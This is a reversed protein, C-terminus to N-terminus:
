GRRLLNVVLERSAASIVQERTADDKLVTGIAALFQIHPGSIKKPSVVMIFLRSREGDMSDFEIGTKKIGVAVCIGKVGETKAHPLAIGHQMGTSMSKEREFIDHLVLDRDELKGHVALIDVMETLLEDKTNGRLDTVTCEGTVLNLLEQTTRGLGDM